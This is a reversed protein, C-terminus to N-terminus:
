LIPCDKKCDEREFSWSNRGKPPRMELLEDVTRIGKFARDALGVVMLWFPFNRGLIHQEPIWNRPSFKILIILTVMPFHYSPVCMLNCKKHRQGKLFEQEITAWYKLEGTDSWMMNLVIHQYLMLWM